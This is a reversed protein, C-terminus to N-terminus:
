RGIPSTSAHKRLGRSRIQLLFEVAEGGGPALREDRMQLLNQGSPRRCACSRFTCVCVGGADGKGLLLWVVYTQIEDFDPFRARFKDRIRRISWRVQRRCGHDAGGAPVGARHMCDFIQRYTVFSGVNSALLQVMRFETATLGVDVGDWCARSSAPHLSLGRCHSTEEAAARAAARSRGAAHELRAVLVTMSRSKDIFDVAGRRLALTEYTPNSLGTLFVVPWRVGRRRLDGLVDIGSASALGWDLLVVDAALGAGVADLMPSDDNFSSVSFGQETLEADVAQRYFADDDVFIVRTASAALPGASVDIEINM